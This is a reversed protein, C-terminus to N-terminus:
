RDASEVRALLDRFARIADTTTFIGEVGAKGVLVVSSLRRSEMLALVEDLPTETPLSAVDYTMADEVSDDAPHVRRADRDTIIGVLEADDVVPLHRIKQIQMLERVSSLRDRPSVSRPAPTMYRSVPPILM